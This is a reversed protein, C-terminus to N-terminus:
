KCRYNSGLPRAFTYSAPEVVLKKGAEGANGGLLTFPLSVVYVVSGVATGVLGLPRIFIVDAAMKEASASTSCGDQAALLTSPVCLTTFLILAYIKYM